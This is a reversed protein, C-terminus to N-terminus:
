KSVEQGAIRGFVVVDTIANGGLRNSGHIGGTVEGAAYLGPIVNGDKALVQTQENIEIGGMTHHVMPGTIGAYFPGVGFEQDFVTRGFPDNGSRVSNNFQDVSAQLNEFPVGIVEALEELTDAKWAYGTNLSDRDVHRGISTVGDKVTHADSIIYIQADTQELVAGSLVDRRGDEAVFRNGEKNIYFQNEIYPTFVGPGYTPIMQIWEMDVLNAGIAEAMVIGDGTAQPGNTTPVSEDLIAWHKNYKMRMEVNAGFGGTAIVVGKNANIQFPQGTTTKGAVGVVRGGDMLLTDARSDLLIIGGNEEVYNVQPLVFSAGQTGFGTTPTHSRKWTAGVAAQINENWNAGLDSLFNVAALGNDALIDVLVPNAVNDGDFYTQLKHLSPSDFLYSADEAVYADLEQTLTDKWTQVLENDAELELIKQITNLEASSMTQKNQKEPSAANMASGALLTNGGVASQKEIVIVSSGAKIAEVAASMGAGGSGIIVVDATQEIKETSVEKVVKKNLQEIDSATQTLAATVAALLGESTLTAGSVLDVAISQEEIIQAPIKELALDSIVPTENQDVVKIDTIADESVTVEVTIKGGYGQAEGTFTGPQFITTSALGVASSLSFILILSLIFGVHRKM